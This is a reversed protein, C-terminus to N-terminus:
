KGRNWTMCVRVLRGLLYGASAYLTACVLTYIVVCAYRHERLWQFDANFLLEAGPLCPLTVLWLPLNNWEGHGTFPTGFGRYNWPMSALWGLIPVSGFVITIWKVM